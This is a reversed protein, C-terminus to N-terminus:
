TCDPTLLWWLPHLSIHNFEGRRSLDLSVGCTSTPNTPALRPPWLDSTVHCPWTPYRHVSPISSLSVIYLDSPPNQLFSFYYQTTQLCNDCQSYFHFRHLLVEFIYQHWYKHYIQVMSTYCYNTSHFSPEFNYIKSIKQSLKLIKNKKEKSLETFIIYCFFNVFYDTIVYYRHTIRCTKLSKQDTVWIMSLFSFYKFSITL